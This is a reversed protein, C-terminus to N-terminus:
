GYRSVKLEKSPIVGSVCVGECIDAYQHDLLKQRYRQMVESNWLEELSYLNSDGLDQRCYCGPKFKHDPTMFMQQWPLYCLIDKTKQPPREGLSHNAQLTDTHVPAPTDKPSIAPLWNHLIIGY